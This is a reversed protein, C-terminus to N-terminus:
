FSVSLSSPFTQTLIVLETILLWLNILSSPYLQIVMISYCGFMISYVFLCFRFQTASMLDCVDCTLEPFHEFLFYFNPFSIETPPKPACFFFFRHGLCLISDRFVSFLCYLAPACFSVVLLLLLVDFYIM